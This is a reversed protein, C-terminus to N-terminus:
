ATCDSAPAGTKHGESDKELMETTLVSQEFLRAQEALEEDTLQAEADSQLEEEEEEDEDSGDAAPEELESVASDATAAFSTKQVRM